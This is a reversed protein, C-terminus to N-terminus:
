STCIDHVASRKLVRRAQRAGGPSGWSSQPCSRPLKMLARPAQAERPALAHTNLSSNTRRLKFAVIWLAAVVTVIGLQVFQWTQDAVRETTEQCTGYVFAVTIINLVAALYVQRCDRDVCNHVTSPLSRVFTDVTAVLGLCAALVVIFGGRRRRDDCRVMLPVLLLPFTQSAWRRVQRLATRRREARVRKSPTIALAPVNAVAQAHPLRGWRGHLRRSAWVAVCLSVSRVILALLRISTGEDQTWEIFRLGEFGTEVQKLGSNQWGLDFLLLLSAVVALVQATGHLVKWKVTAEARLAISCVVTLHGVLLRCHDSRSFAAIGTSAALV